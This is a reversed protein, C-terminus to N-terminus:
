RSRRCCGNHNGAESKKFVNGCRECVIADASVRLGCESCEKFTEKGETGEAGLSIGLSRSYLTRVFRNRLSTANLRNVSLNM